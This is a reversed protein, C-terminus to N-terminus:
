IEVAVPIAELPGSAEQPPKFSACAIAAMTVALMVAAVALSRKMM